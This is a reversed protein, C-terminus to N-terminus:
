DGLALDLALGLGAKEPSLSDRAVLLASSKGGLVNKEKYASSNAPAPICMLSLLM